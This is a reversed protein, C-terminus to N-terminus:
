SAAMGVRILLLLCVWASLLSSPFLAPFCCKQITVHVAREGFVCRVSRVEVKHRGSEPNGVSLLPQGQAGCDSGASPIHEHGESM